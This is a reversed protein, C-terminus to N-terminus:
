FVNKVIGWLVLVLVVALALILLIVVTERAIMMGKKNM